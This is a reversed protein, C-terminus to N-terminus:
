CFPFLTTCVAAINEASFLLWGMIASRGYGRERYIKGAGLVKSNNFSEVKKNNPKTALM